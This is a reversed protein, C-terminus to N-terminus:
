HIDSWIKRKVAYMIACFISLFFLVKIGTRKRIEMTPESSWVLFEVIDKSYQEVTEATGDEYAVMGDSLPPAMAIVHGAMYKNYYQGSLLEIDKPVKDSYGTLLAYVYDAGHARAKTILSLDPPLAGNNAYAAAKANPFPNKFRDSPKAPRDFMEGEDNPGDTVEFEAAIAKVEAENYGLASLNRYYLHDMGHCASCVQSYVQFGRQLAGRDFTGFPGTFHWHQHPVPEGGGGALASHSGCTLISVAILLVFRVM